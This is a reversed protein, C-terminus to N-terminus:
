SSARHSAQGYFPDVLVVKLRGSFIYILDHQNQVQPMLIKENKGLVQLRVKHHAFYKIVSTHLEFFMYIQKLLNTMRHNRKKTDREEIINQRVNNISFNLQDKQQQSM